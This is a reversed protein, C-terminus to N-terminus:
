SSPGSNSAMTTLWFPDRYAFIARNGTPLWLKLIRQNVAPHRRDPNGTRCCGTKSKLGVPQSRVDKVGGFAPRVGRWNSRYARVRNQM